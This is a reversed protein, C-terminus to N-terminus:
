GHPHDQARPLELRLLEAHGPRIEPLLMRIPGRHSVVLVRAGAHRQTLEQLASRVREELARRSEGGPPAFDRDGSRFARYEDPWREQIQERTFGSWAGIHWERWRPDTRVERGFATAITHATDSARRLDSSVVIEPAAGEFSAVCERAQRWGIESLPPDGQGQWLREANWISEGHRLLLLDTDRM